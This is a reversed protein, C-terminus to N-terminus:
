RVMSELVGRWKPAVVSYDFSSAKTVCRDSYEEEHEICNRIGEALDLPDCMDALYGNIKHDIQDVIGGAPFAAVPTGCAMSECVMLGFSEQLSPVVTVDAANYILRMRDEDEVYGLSIHEQRILLSDEEDMRGLLIVFVEDDDLERLAEILYRGGKNANDRGMNVAGALIVPKDGPIGLQRLAETKHTRFFVNKDITNPIYEVRANRGVLSKRIDEIISRGPGALIVNPRSSYEAKIRAQERVRKRLRGAKKCDACGDAFGGCGGDVHCGGTFHWMDHCFIVVPKGIDILASIAKTSLFSNVWHIFIVDAELVLPSESLDSSLIDCDVSGNAFLGNILNRSKSVLKAMPSKLFEEGGASSSLCNRFLVVSEMGERNLAENLRVVAKFAGGMDITTIHVAKM